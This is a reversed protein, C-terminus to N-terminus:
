QLIIVKIGCDRKISIKTEIIPDKYIFSMVEADLGLVTFNSIEIRFIMSVCEALAELSKNRIKQNEAVMRELEARKSKIMDDEGYLEIFAQILARTEMETQEGRKTNEYLILAQDILDPMVKAYAEKNITEILFQKFLLAKMENNM